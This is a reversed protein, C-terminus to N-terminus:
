ESLLKMLAGHGMHLPLKRGNDTEVSTVTGLSSFGVLIRRNSMAGVGDGISLILTSNEIKASVVPAVSKIWREVLKQQEQSDMINLQRKQEDNKLQALQDELRATERAMDDLSATERVVDNHATQLERTQQEVVDRESQEKKELERALSGLEDELEAIIDTLEVNHQALSVAEEYSECEADINANAHKIKEGLRTQVQSLLREEEVVSMELKDLENDQPIFAAGKIREAFIERARYAVLAERSEAYAGSHM